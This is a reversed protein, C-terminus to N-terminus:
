RFAAFFFFIWIIKLKPRILRSNFADFHWNWPAWPGSLQVRWMEIKTFPGTPTDILLPTVFLSIVHCTRRTISVCRPHPTMWEVYRPLPPPTLISCSPAALPSFSCHWTIGTVWTVGASLQARGPVLKLLNCRAHSTLWPLCMTRGGPTWEVTEVPRKIAPGWTNLKM